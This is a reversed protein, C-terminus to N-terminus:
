HLAAYIALSLTAPTLTMTWWLFDTRIMANLLGGDYFIIFVRCVFWMVWREKNSAPAVGSPVPKATDPLNQFICTRLDWPRRTLPRSVWAQYGDNPSINQQGLAPTFTNTSSQAPVVNQTPATLNVQGWQYQTIGAIDNSIAAQIWSSYAIQQQQDTLPLQGQSLGVGLATPVPVAPQIGSANLPIFPQSANFFTFAPLNNQTVLGFGTLSVPKGFSFSFFFLYWSSDNGVIIHRSVDFIDRSATHDL